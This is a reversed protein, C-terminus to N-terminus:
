QHYTESTPSCMDSTIQTECTPSCMDSTIVIRVTSYIGMGQQVYGYKGQKHLSVNQLEPCAASPHVHVNVPTNDRIIQNATQEIWEM